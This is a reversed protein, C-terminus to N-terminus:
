SNYRYNRYWNRTRTKRIDRQGLSFYKRSQYSLLGYGIGNISSYNIDLGWWINDNNFNRNQTDLTLLCNRRQNM